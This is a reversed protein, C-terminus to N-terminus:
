LDSCPKRFTEYGHYKTKSIFNQGCWGDTQQRKIEHEIWREVCNKVQKLEKVKQTMPGEHILQAKMSDNSM